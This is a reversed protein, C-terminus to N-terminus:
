DGIVVQPPHILRATITGIRRTLMGSSCPMPLNLKNPFYNLLIDYFRSTPNSALTLIAHAPQRPCLLSLTLTLYALHSRKSM